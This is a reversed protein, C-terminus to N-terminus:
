APRYKIFYSNSIKITRTFMMSKYYTCAIFFLPMGSTRGAFAPMVFVPDARKSCGNIEECAGQSTGVSFGM